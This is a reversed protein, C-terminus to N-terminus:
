VRSKKIMSWRLTDTDTAFAKQGSLIIWFGASLSPVTINASTGSGSAYQSRTNNAAGNYSEISTDSIIPFFRSHLDSVINNTTLSAILTAGTLSNSTNVYIRFTKVPLTNNTLISAYVELMDGTEIINPNIQYSHLIEETTVATGSNPTYNKALLGSSGGLPYNWDCGEVIIAFSDSNQTTALIKYGPQLNFGNPFDIQHVFSRRTASPTIVFTPVETFLKTVTGGSNQIFFRVMGDSSPTSASKIVISKIVCGKYTGSSGATLLTVVTGTTGDLNSNATSVLGIATNATYNTSDPRAGNSYYTWDLGEAIINFTDAIQTTARIEYTAKLDFDLEIYKEFCEQNATQTMVPVEIERILMTDTGNYVFLRIMGPATTSGKAKVTISKVKTGNSAATLVTWINTNLTGSGTLSTNAANITAMGTNATYQTETIM